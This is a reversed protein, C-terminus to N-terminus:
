RRDVARAALWLALSLALLGYQEAAVAGLIALLAGLETAIRLM